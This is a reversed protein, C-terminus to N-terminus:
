KPLEVYVFLSSNDALDCCIKALVLLDFATDKINNEQEKEHRELHFEKNKEFLNIILDCDEDSLANEYLEIFNYNKM